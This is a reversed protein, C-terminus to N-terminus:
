PAVGKPTDTRRSRTGASSRWLAAALAAFVLMWRGALSGPWFGTFPLLSALLALVAVTFARAGPFAARGWADRAAAVLYLAIFLGWHVASLSAAIMSLPLQREGVATLGYGSLLFPPYALVATLLTAGLVFSAGRANVSSSRALIHAMLAPTMWGFYVLHSHAHRVNVFQLEWPLGFLIGGRLLPSSL